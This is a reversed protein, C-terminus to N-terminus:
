RVLKWSQMDCPQGSRLATLWGTSSFAVADLGVRAAASAFGGVCPLALGADGGAAANGDGGAGATQVSSQDVYVNNTQGAYATSHYGAVAINIPDYLM